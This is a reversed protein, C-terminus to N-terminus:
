KRLFKGFEDKKGRDRVINYNKESGFVKKLQDVYPKTQSIPSHANYCVYAKWTIHDLRPWCPRYKLLEQIRRYTHIIQEVAHKVDKGKLEVFCLVIRNEKSYFAVYDCGAEGEQIGLDKRVPTNDIKFFLVTEDAQREVGVSVGSESVSAGPMLSTLLLTNFPM